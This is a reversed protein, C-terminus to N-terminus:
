IGLNNKVCFYSLFHCKVWWMMCISWKKCFFFGESPQRAFSIQLAAQEAKRAVM